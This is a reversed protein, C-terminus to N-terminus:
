KLRVRVLPLVGELEGKMVPHQNGGVSRSKRTVQDELYEYLEQLTIVGDRNLDAAGKLGEVLFYTFLGHGLDSLELSVETPRSATLIVRGKSRTLRELFLDDVSGARTSKTVFTRGGASGSYCADLFAVIRDAEIRAFITQLEDMPFATSYLDDADADSPILYKALGDRELGRPDVEPAGHGAFFIVVTDNKRAARSLFTGLAWRINRSTPKRDTRDTLLIVNDKKFGGPGILMQYVADADSVAYRLSPIQADAYKGVGIVVAWREASLAPVAAPSGAATRSVTRVAQSVNGARDSATVAIVNEGPTLNVTVRIPFGRASMATTDSATSILAGNVSIEVREIAVNDTVLGLLTIQDRDVKSEPPPYHIAIRPAETDPTVGAVTSPSPAGPTPQVPTPAAPRSGKPNLAPRGSSTPPTGPATAAASSPLQTAVTPTPTPPVVGPTVVTTGGNDRKLRTITARDGLWFTYSGVQTGDVFLDATWQGPYPKLDAMPFDWSSYFWVFRPDHKVVKRFNSHTLGDPRRLTGHLNFDHSPRNIAVIFVVKLDSDPFFETYGGPLNSDSIRGVADMTTSFYAYRVLASTSGERSPATPPRYAGSACGQLGALMALLLATACRIRARKLAPM